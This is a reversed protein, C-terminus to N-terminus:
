KLSGAAQQQYRAKAKYTPAPGCDNSSGRSISCRPLIPVAVQEPKSNLTQLFAILDAKEEPALNLPRIEDARSPRDVGGRDYLDIVDDLTALSGDHM